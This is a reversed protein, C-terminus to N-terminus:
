RTADKGNSENKNGAILEVPRARLKGQRFQEGTERMARMLAPWDDISTASINEIMQGTLEPILINLM